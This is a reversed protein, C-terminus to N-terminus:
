GLCARSWGITLLIPLPLADASCCLLLLPAAAAAASRSPATLRAKMETAKLGSPAELRAKVSRVTDDVSLGDIEHKGGAGSVTIKM